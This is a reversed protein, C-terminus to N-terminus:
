FKVFMGVADGTTSKNSHHLKSSKEGVSLRVQAIISMHENLHERLLFQCRYYSEFRRM